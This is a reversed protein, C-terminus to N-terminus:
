FRPLDPNRNDGGSVVGRLLWAALLKFISEIRFHRFYLPQEILRFEAPM